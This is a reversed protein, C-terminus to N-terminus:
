DQIKNSKLLTIQFFVIYKVNEVFINGFVNPVTEIGTYLVPLIITPAVRGAKFAKSKCHLRYDFVYDFQLSSCVVSVKM